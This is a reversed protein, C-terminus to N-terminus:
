SSESTHKDIDLNLLHGFKDKKTQLYKKVHDHIPLEHQVRSTVKIGNKEIELVKEPNNTMLKISKVGIKKLMEAPIKYDREDAKFGLAINAEYTDFGKDQLVYARLKNVLGIGRGEEMHYLLIGSGEKEIIRLAKHLQPGCDCRKSGLSDGTLCASHIRTLIDEGKGIEGKLVIIHDKQDKNNVFGIIKFNGYESPFNSVSVVKVCINEPCSECKMKNPCKRLSEIDQEIIEDIDPINM